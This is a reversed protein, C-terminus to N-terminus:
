GAVSADAMNKLGFKLLLGSVWLIDGDKLEYRGSVRKNNILTKGRLLTAVYGQRNRTIVVALNPKFWGQLRVLSSKARGILSTHADLQYETHPARGDLVRLVGVTGPAAGPEPTTGHAEVDKLRAVLMEYKKYADSDVALKELMTRTDLFVTEGQNPITSEIANAAVAEADGVQDLLLKHKGILLVDGDKLVQRTIRTGNVFTGNTSQLDEVVLQEGDRFVCAHHSSVASNDLMVTNDALRGITATRGVVYEKLVQDECQVTLRAM